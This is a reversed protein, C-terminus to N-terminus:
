VIKGNKEWREIAWNIQFDIQEKPSLKEYIEKENKKYYKVMMLDSGFKIDNFEKLFEEKYNKEMIKTGVPSSSM